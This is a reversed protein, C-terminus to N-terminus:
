FLSGHNRVYTINDNDEDQGQRQLVLEVNDLKVTVKDLAQQTVEKITDAIGFM